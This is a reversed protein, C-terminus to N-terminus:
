LAKLRAVTHNIRQVVQGVNAGRTIVTSLVMEEDVGRVILGGETGFVIGMFFPGFEMERVSMNGAALVESTMAALRDNQDKDRFSSVLILGDPSVCAAGQIHPDDDVLKELSGQLIDLDLTAM